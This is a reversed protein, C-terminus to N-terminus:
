EVRVNLMMGQDEHELNHCHFLFLQEGPYNPKSFDIEVAVSEGPWVLVTDKYGMDTPIRGSGDIARQKVQDPSNKRERVRYFYGHLHMPHPMSASANNIVWIEKGRKPVVIPADNMSFTLGNITWGGMHQMSLTIQHEKLAERSLSPIVSLNQPLQRSYSIRNKVFLRLIPFSADEELANNSGSDHSGSKSGMGAMESMHEMGNMNGMSGMEAMGSMENHMPDYPMNQLYISQGASFLALNLSIDVREGPALFVEEVQQPSPLLGGDNGVIHFPLKSGDSLFALNYIRATSGNLLRFRYARTAVDMTPKEAGNVLIRNGIYGMMLEDKTPSYDLDGASNFKKDQILVPIDTKGLVFDMERSFRIEEEDKVIFFSALGLYSQRATIMHPHPHYWYTGARNTIEFSYNYREGPKIAYSPHGTQKWSADVGHWHIITPENLGNELALEFHQGKNLILIPNYFKENNESTSYALMQSKNAPLLNPVDMTKFSLKNQYPLLGFLGSKGPVPLRASFENSQALVSQLPIGTRVGIYFLTAKLSLLMFNRRNHNM